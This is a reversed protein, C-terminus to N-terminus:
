VLIQSFYDIPLDRILTELNGNEEDYIADAYEFNM